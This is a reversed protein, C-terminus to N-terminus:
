NIPDLPRHQNNLGPTMYILQTTEIVNVKHWEGKKIICSAGAGLTLSENPNSDSTLNIKGSIVYLIEDGDLHVEGNNMSRELTVIGVNLGDFQKPPGKHMNPVSISVELNRNIEFTNKTVDIPIINKM